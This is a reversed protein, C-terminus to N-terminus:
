RSRRPRGGERAVHDGRRAVQKSKRAAKGREYKVRGEKGNHESATEETLGKLRVREGILFRVMTAWTNLKAVAGKDDRSSESHHPWTVRGFGLTPHHHSAM